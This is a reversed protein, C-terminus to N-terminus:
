NAFDKQGPLSSSSPGLTNLGLNFGNWPKPSVNGARTTVAARVAPHPHWDPWLWQDREPFDM